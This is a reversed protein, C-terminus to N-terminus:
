KSKGTGIYSNSILDQMYVPEKVLHLYADLISYDTYIAQLVIILIFIYFFVFFFMKKEFETKKM